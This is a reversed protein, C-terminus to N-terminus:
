LLILVNCIASGQYQLKGAPDGPYRSVCSLFMVTSCLCSSLGDDHHAGTWAGVVGAASAVNGIQVGEASYIHVLDIEVDRACFREFHLKM